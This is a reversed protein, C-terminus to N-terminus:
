WSPAIKAVLQNKPHSGLLLVWHLWINALINGFNVCKPLWKVNKVCKTALIVIDKNPLWGFFPLTSVIIYIKMNPENLTEFPTSKFASYKM